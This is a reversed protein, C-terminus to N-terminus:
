CVFLCVFLCVPLCVLLLCLALLGNSRQAPINKQTLLECCDAVISDKM